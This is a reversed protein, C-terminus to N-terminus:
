SDNTIRSTLSKIKLYNGFSETVNNIFLLTKELNIIGNENIQIFDPFDLITRHKKGRINKPKIAGYKEVSPLINKIIDEQIKKDLLGEESHIKILLKKRSSVEISIDISTEENFTRWYIILWWTSGLHYSGFRSVSINYNVERAFSYWHSNNWKKYPIYIDYGNIKKELHYKFDNFIGNNTNSNKILSYLENIDILHYSSQKIKKIEDRFIIDSKLYIFIIENKPFKKEIINKYRKLQNNNEESSVKDEILLIINEKESEIKVLIDIKEYQM